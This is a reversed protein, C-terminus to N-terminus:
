SQVSLNQSRNSMAIIILSLFNNTISFPYVPHFQIECYIIYEFPTIKIFLMEFIYYQLETLRCNFTKKIQKKELM